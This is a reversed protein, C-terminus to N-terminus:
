VCFKSDQNSSWFVSGEIGEAAMLVAGATEPWPVHPEVKGRPALSGGIELGWSGFVLSWFRFVFFLFCFVFFLFCFVLLWFDFVLFELGM